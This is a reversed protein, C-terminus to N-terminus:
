ITGQYQTLSKRLENGIEAALEPPELVLVDTGWSLIWRKMELLDTASLTLILSGDDEEEMKQGEQWLREQVYPRVKSTFRLRVTHSKDGRFIGFNIRLSDEYDFDPDPIFRQPLLGAEEIRSIAFTRIENRLHCRGILYWEGQYGTLHYPDVTRGVALQEGPKQYRIDLSQERQLAQAVTDWIEPRIVSHHDPLITIRNNVWANNITVKEPLSQAIKEFIKNLRSQLPTNKYQGLIKHSMLIGVLDGENLHLTPLVFNDESYFYGWRKQDYVIPADRNTLLYGIDRYITKTSVELEESLSTCNVLKGCRMGSRIRQDITRLRNDQSKTTPMAAFPSFQIFSSGKAFQYYESSLIKLMICLKSSFIM